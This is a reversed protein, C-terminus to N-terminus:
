RGELGIKGRAGEGLEYRGRGGRLRKGHGGKERWGGEERKREGKGSGKGGGERAEGACRTTKAAEVAKRRLPARCAQINQRAYMWGCTRNEPGIDLGDGRAWADQLRRCKWVDGLQGLM